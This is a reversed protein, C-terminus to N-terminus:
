PMSDRVCYRTCLYSNEGLVADDEHRKRIGDGGEDNGDSWSFLGRSPEVIHRKVDNHRATDTGKCLTTTHTAKLMVIPVFTHVDNDQQRKKGRTM